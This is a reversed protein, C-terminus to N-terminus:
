EANKKIAAVRKSTDKLVVHANVLVDGSKIAEKSIHPYAARLLVWQFHLRCPLHMLFDPKGQAFIAEGCVVCAGLNRKQHIGANAHQSHKAALLAKAKEADELQARWNERQKGYAVAYIRGVTTNYKAALEKAEEYSVGNQHFDVTELTPM